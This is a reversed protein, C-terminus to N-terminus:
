TVEALWDRQDIHSFRAVDASYAVRVMGVNRTEYHPHRYPNSSGLQTLKTTRIEVGWVPDYRHDGGPWIRIFHVETVCEMTDLSKVFELAAALAQSPAKWKDSM